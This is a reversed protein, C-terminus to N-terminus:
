ATRKSGFTGSPYATQAVTEISILLVLTRDLLEVLRNTQVRVRRIEKDTAARSEPFGLAVLLCQLVGVLGNKEVRLADCRNVATSKGVACELLVLQSYLIETL